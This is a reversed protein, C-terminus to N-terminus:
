RAGSLGLCPPLGSPHASYPFAHCRAAGPTATREPTVLIYQNHPTCVFYETSSQEQAPVPLTLLLLPALVCPDYLTLWSPKSNQSEVVVVDHHPLHRLPKLEFCARPLLRLVVLDLYIILQLMERKSTGPRRRRRLVTMQECGQSCDIHNRIYTTMTFCKSCPSTSFNLGMEDIPRM